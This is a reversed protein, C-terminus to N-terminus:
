EDSDDTLKRLEEDADAAGRRLLRGPNPDDRHHHGRLLAFVSRHELSEGTVETWPGLDVRDLLQLDEGDCIGLELPTDFGDPLLDALETLGEVFERITAL